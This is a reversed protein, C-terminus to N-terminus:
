LVFNLVAEFTHVSYGLSSSCMYDSYQYEPKIPLFQWSICDLLGIILHCPLTSILKLLFSSVDGHLLLEIYNLQM